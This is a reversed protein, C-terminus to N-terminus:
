KFCEVGAGQIGAPPAIKTIYKFPNRESFDSKWGGELIVNSVTCKPMVGSKSKGTYHGEAVFVHDGPALTKMVKWLLKLPAGKSGDNGNSGTDRSVYIDKAFAAGTVLLFITLVAGSMLLRRSM